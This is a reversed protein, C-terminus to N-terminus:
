RRTRPPAARGSAAAYSCPRRRPDQLSRSVRRASATQGGATQCASSSCVPTVRGRSSAKKAPPSSFRSPSQESWRSCWSPPAPSSGARTAADSLQTQRRHRPTPLTTDLSQALWAALEIAPWDHEVGGFPTVIPGAAIQGSGVLVAVDCPARELVVRLDEAIRGEILGWDADTLILDVDHEEALRVADAGPELTTFAAVRSPVGREALAERHGALAASADALERDDRLLRALIAERPPTARAARRCRAVRRASTLLLALLTRQRSGGLTLM